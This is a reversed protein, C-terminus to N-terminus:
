NGDCHCRDVPEYAMASMLGRCEMDAKGVGEKFLDTLAWTSLPLRDYPTNRVRGLAPQSLDSTMASTPNTGSEAM